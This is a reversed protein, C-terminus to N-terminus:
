NIWKEEMASLRVEATRTPDAKVDKLLIQKRGEKPIIDGRFDLMERENWEFVDTHPDWHKPILIYVEDCEVMTKTM